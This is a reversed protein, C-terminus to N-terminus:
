KKALVIKLIFTYSGFYSYKNETGKCNSGTKQNKVPVDTLFITQCFVSGLLTRYKALVTEIRM